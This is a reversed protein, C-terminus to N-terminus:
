TVPLGYALNLVALDVSEWAEPLDERNVPNAKRTSKSDFKLWIHHCVGTIGARPFRLCPCRSDCALRHQTM